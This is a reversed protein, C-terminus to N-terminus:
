HIFQCTHRCVGLMWKAKIMYYDYQHNNCCRYDAIYYAIPKTVFRTRYQKFPLICPYKLFLVEHPCLIKIVVVTFCRNEEGFKQWDDASESRNYCTYYFHRFRLKNKVIDRATDGPDAGHHQTTEKQLCPNFPLKAVAQFIM